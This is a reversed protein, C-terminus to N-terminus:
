KLSKKNAQKQGTWDCIRKLGSCIHHQTGPRDLLVKAPGPVFICFLFLSVSTYFLSESETPSPSPPINRSFLMLVYINYLTFCIELGPQVCSVLARAQHVPFAWLSPIPFSTPPTNLIPLVHLDMASEHGHIAFVM